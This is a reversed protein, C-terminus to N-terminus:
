IPQVGGGRRPDHRECPEAAQRRRAAPLQAAGHRHGSHPALRAFDLGLSARSERRVGRAQGRARRRRDAAQRPLLRDGHQPRHDHVGAPRQVQPLSKLIAVAPASLQVEHARRNKAKERPMTWIAKGLDIESWEVGAVEDRRQGTLLLLQVLPGFPWGVVGCAQWLWRLEDDTLARDRPQEKSPQRMGAVPSAVLRGRAVAWNFLARLHALVRNAQIEAGRAAIADLVRNVDGRTISASPRKGWAPIVDRALSRDAEKATSPAANRRQRDLYDRALAGFTDDETQETLRRSRKEATPDFGQRVRELVASAERRAQAPKIAPYAGITYRRLRGGLRYHVSWSKHGSDTVRLALGGFVADFYEVRGREAPKVREVFLDTLKKQPM